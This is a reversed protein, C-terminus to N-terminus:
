SQFCPSDGPRLVNTFVSRTHTFNKIDAMQAKRFSELFNTKGTATTKIAGYYIEGNVKLFVFTNEKDKVVLQAKEVVDPLLQYDEISLEKHGIKGPILGKQKKVTYDSMLVVQSKSGISNM